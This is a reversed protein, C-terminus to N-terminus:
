RGVYKRAVKALGLWMGLGHGVAYLPAVAAVKAADGLPRGARVVAGAALTSCAAVAAPVVLAPRRLAALGLLASVPFFAAAVPFFRSERRGHGDLFVVGRHVAHGFFRTATSRPAYTCSFSPSVNIRERAALWRLVPTDDNADRTSAYRTVHLDHAERLLTTPALFCTTGKPFRDFEEVGFSTTRPDDFYRRWALEALLRWFVGYANGGDDVEVHGTWVRDGVLVRAHVFALADAHLRVRGDHLLVMEGRAADLGARRAALRGRNEQSVVRLSLRGALAERAADGSGDTSGDDVLVLETDVGARAVAEVLAEITAPLYAAEDYVPMVVSLEVRM